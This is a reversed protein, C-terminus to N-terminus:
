WQCALRPRARATSPQRSRATSSSPCVVSRTTERPTWSPAPTHRTTQVGSQKDARVDTWTLVVRAGIMPAHTDPDRVAGLIGAPGDPNLVDRCAIELIGNDSPIGLPIVPVHGPPFDIPQTGVALGLTDLIPHHLSLQYVGPPVSDIRYFGKPDTVTQQGTEDVRVIAGVLPGGHISDVVIGFAGSLTSDTSREEQAVIGNQSWTLVAVLV